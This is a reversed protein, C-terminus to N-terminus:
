QKAASGQGSVVGPFTILGVAGGGIGGLILGGAGAPLCSFSVLMCMTLGADRDAAIAAVVCLLGTKVVQSGTNALLGVTAGGVTCASLSVRSRRRLLLAYIVAGVLLTMESLATSALAVPARLSFPQWITALSSGIEIVFQVVAVVLAPGIAGLVIKRMGLEIGFLRRMLSCGPRLAKGVPRVIPWRRPRCCLPGAILVSHDDRKGAGGGQVALTVVMLALLCLFGLLGITVMILAGKARILQSPSLIWLQGGLLTLILPWSPDDLDMQHNSTATDASPFRLPHRAIETRFVPDCFALGLFIAYGIAGM